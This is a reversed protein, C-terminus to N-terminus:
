RLITEELREQVKRDVKLPSELKVTKVYALGPEVRVVELQGTVKPSSQLLKGKYELPVSDELVDFRTGTVVGQNAGLNVTAQDNTVGVIYGRLPYKVVVTKLIDRNVQRIETDLTLQPGLQKTTIYPIASTETDIVRMSLVTGQPQYLFSGTVILKAALIKGLKLATETDALESSGINLEQLLREILVREVVKLRGSGNLDSTLESTVVTSFGDREALGGKETFDMFTVVMPRSTWSDSVPANKVLESNYRAALDKVLQDIRKSRETDKQLDLMEQARRAFVAAYRDSKDLVLAKQYTKLAQDWKGEKEYSLGKDTTTEVDLPDIKEANAYFAQSEKQKGGNKAIRGLRKYALAIQSPTADTKEIAKRYEVVADEKRNKATFVDGKIVNVYSRDPYKQELELAVKMADDYRGRKLQVDALCEKGQLEGKPGSKVLSMCEDEAAKLKGEQLYVTATLRRASVQGPNKDTVERTLEKALKTDKRSLEREALRVLMSETTKGGGQFYDLVKSDPGIACVVPLIQRAQYLGSINKDDLLVPFIVGSSKVFGAVKDRSSRTIALVTLNAKYKVVLNNLRLLGDQSARSDMDFFYLVSLPVTQLGALDHNKGNLDTLVFDPALTGSRMEAFGSATILLVSCAVLLSISLAHYYKM